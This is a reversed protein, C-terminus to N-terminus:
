TQGTRAQIQPELQLVAEVDVVQLWEPGLTGFPRRCGLAAGTWELTYDGYRIKARGTTGLGANQAFLDQRIAWRRGIVTLSRKGCM